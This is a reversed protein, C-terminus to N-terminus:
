PTTRAARRATSWTTLLASFPSLEMTGARITFNRRALKHLRKRALAALIEATVLTGRETEPTAAHAEDMLREARMAYDSLLAKLGTDSHVGEIVHRDLHHLRLDEAAFYVRGRQADAASHMVIGALQWACGLNRAASLSILSDASCLGAALATFAGGRQKCYRVVDDFAAFGPPRLDQRTSDVMDLFLRNTLNLKGHLVWFARSVPHRAKGDLMLEIEEEWWRLKTEAIGPDSCERLIDRIELYLACLAVLRERCDSPSFQIAYRLDAPIGAHTDSVSM